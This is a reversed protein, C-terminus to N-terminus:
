LLLFRVEKLAAADNRLASAMTPKLGSRVRAYAAQLRAVRLARSKEANREQRAWELALATKLDQPRVCCAM